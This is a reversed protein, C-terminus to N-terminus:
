QQQQEYKRTRKDLATGPQERRGSDNLSLAAFRTQWADRATAAAESVDEQPRTRGAAPATSPRSNAAAAAAAAAATTPERTVPNNVPRPPPSSVADSARSNGAQKQQQQQKPPPRRQLRRQGGSARPAALPRPIRSPGNVAPHLLQLPCHIPAAPPPPRRRPDRHPRRQAQIARRQSARQEPSIQIVAQIARRPSAHQESSIQIVAQFQRNRIRRAPNEILQRTRPAAGSPAQAPKSKAHVRKASRGQCDVHQTRSPAGSIRFAPHVSASDFGQGSSLAAQREYFSNMQETWAPTGVNADDAGDDTNYRDDTHHEHEDDFPNTHRSSPTEPICSSPSMPRQNSTNPVHQGFRTSAITDSPTSSSNGSKPAWASKPPLPVNSDDKHKAKSYPVSKGAQRYAERRQHRRVGIEHRIRRLDEALVASKVKLDVVIQDGAKQEFADIWADVVKLFIPTANEARSLLHARLDVLLRTDGGVVACICAECQSEVKEMMVPPYKYLQEFFQRDMWLAQISTIRCVLEQFSPDKALDSNNRMIRRLREFKDTVESVLLEFLARVRWPNLSKHATCLVAADPVFPLSQKVSVKMLGRTVLDMMNLSDSKPRLLVSPLDRLRTEQEELWKQSPRAISDDAPLSLYLALRKLSGYTLENILQNSM